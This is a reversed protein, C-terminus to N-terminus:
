IYNYIFDSDAQGNWHEMSDWAEQPTMNYGTLEKLGFHPWYNNYQFIIKDIKPRDLEGQATSELTKWFRECKGNEEPTYPHTTLLEINYSNLVSLFEDAIFEKGNDSIIYKPPDNLQLASKLASSTCFASKYPLIESYILKRIRDDIFVILYCQFYNEEEVPNLYHIDTHWAHNAYKAVYRNQHIHKEKFGGGKAFLDDFEFIKRIKWENLEEPAEPDRKAVDYLRQYGVKFDNVYNNVYDYEEQSIKVPPRGKIITNGQNLYIERAKKFGIQKQKM